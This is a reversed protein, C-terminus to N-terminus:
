LRRVAACTALAFTGVLSGFGLWHIIEAHGNALLWLSGVGIWFGACLPCTAFMRWVRLIREGRSSREAWWQAILEEREDRTFSCALRMTAFRSAARDSASGLERIRRFITGRAWVHAIAVVCLLNWVSFFQTV